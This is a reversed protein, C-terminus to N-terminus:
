KNMEETHEDPVQNLLNNQLSELLIRLVRIICINHELTANINDLIQTIARQELLSPLSIRIQSFEKKNLIPVATKPAISQIYKAKNSISWYLFSPLIIDNPILANIQQNFCLPIKAIAVKGMTGICSVLVSSEPVLRAVKIGETTLYEDSKSVYHSRLDSPKVWPFQGGYYDKNSRPPTNGTIIESIDSLHVVQWSVPITGLGPVEKWEKHHGPLGRTLLEYVLADRLQETNTIVNETQEIAEAVSDLIRAIYKQKRLPPHYPIRWEKFFSKPLNKLSTGASIRQMYNTASNLGLLWFLWSPDTQSDPSVIRVFNSAIVPEEFRVDGLRASKGIYGSGVLLTDRDTVGSNCLENKSVWRRPINDALIRRDESIDGNRVVRVPIPREETAVDSGWAGPRVSELVEALPPDFRSM